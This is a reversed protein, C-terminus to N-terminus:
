GGAQADRFRALLEAAGSRRPELGAPLERDLDWSKVEEAEWIDFLDDSRDGHRYEAEEPFVPLADLFAVHGVDPLELNPMFNDPRETLVWGTFKRGQIIKWNGAVFVGHQPITGSDHVNLAMTAFAELVEQSGHNVGAFMEVAHGHHDQWYHGAGASAYFHVSLRSTGAPWEFVGMRKGSRTNMEHLIPEAGMVKTYHARLEDIM